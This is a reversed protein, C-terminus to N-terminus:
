GVKRSVALSPDNYVRVGPVSLKAKMSKASASLAKTNPDLFGLLFDDGSKAREAAAIVLQKFNTVEAKWNERSSIGATKATHVVAVPPAVDVSLIAEHAAEVRATAVAAAEIDGSQRAAEAEAAAQDAIQEQQARELELQAEHDRRRQDAIRAQEQTYRTIETRLLNEADVLRNTPVKFLDMVRSKAEDMPRTISLRLEEIEKKRTVISRLEDGAIDLMEQSDITVALAVEYSNEALKGAKDLQPYHENNM